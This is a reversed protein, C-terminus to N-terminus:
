SVPTVPMGAPCARPDYSPLPETAPTVDVSPVPQGQAGSTASSTGTGSAPSSAASSGTASTSAPTGTVSLYTGTVVQLDLGNPLNREGMVANGSLHPLLAMAQKQYGPRYYVITEAPDSSPTANGVNVVHEGLSTLAQGVAAAQGAIGSGNLVSVTTGPAIAPTKIGFRQWLLTYDTPSVPFVVSGYGPVGDYTFDGPVEFVPETATPVTAPDVNRFALVLSIMENLGFGSDVQLDPAISGLLSNVTLPNHLRPKVEAALVKLFEHDRHIRSIDGTPDYYWQGNVEYYMHRARVVALAQFGNLLHCGPNPINLGSYADKVPDPFYMKIGGLSNVVGQFTDFNLGVFHNIPIGYDDEITKVLESPGTNLADDVRNAKDTGPIPVFSDRPISVVSATHTAPDLHLLMTVDSRNGGVESGTGFANAQKGNLCSRCNEGILLINVGKTDAESVLNGVKDKHIQHYRYLAYLYGGGALLVVIGVLVTAVVITRRLRRRRRASRRRATRSPPQGARGPMVRGPVPRTPQSANLASFPADPDPM